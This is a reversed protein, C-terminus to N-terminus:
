FVNELGGINILTSIKDYYVVKIMYENVKAMKKDVDNM